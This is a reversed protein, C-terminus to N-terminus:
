RLSSSSMNYYSGLCIHVCMSASGARLCPHVFMNFLYITQYISLYISVLIPLYICLSLSISVYTALRFVALDISVEVCMDDQISMLATVSAGIAETRTKLLRLPGAHQASAYSDPLDLCSRSAKNAGQEAGEPVRPVLGGVQFDWASRHTEPVTM